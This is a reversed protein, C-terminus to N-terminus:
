PTLYFTFIKITFDHINKGGISLDMDCCFHTGIVNVVEVADVVIQVHYDMFSALVNILAVFAFVSAVRIEKCVLSARPLTSGLFM